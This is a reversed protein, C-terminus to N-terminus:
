SIIIDDDNEVEQQDIGTVAVYLGNVWVWAKSDGEYCKLEEILEKVTLQKM